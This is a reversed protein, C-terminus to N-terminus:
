AKPGRLYESCYRELEVREYDENLRNCCAVAIRRQLLWTQKRPSIPENLPAADERSWGDYQSKTM